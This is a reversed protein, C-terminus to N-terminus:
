FILNFDQRPLHTLAVGVEIGRSSNFTMGYGKTDLRDRLYAPIDGPLTRLDCVSVFEPDDVQTLEGNVTVDDGAVLLLTIPATTGALNEVALDICEKFRRATNGVTLTKGPKLRQIIRFVTKALRRDRADLTLNGEIEEFAYYHCPERLVETIFSFAFPSHVGHGRSTLFRSILTLRNSTTRQLNQKPNARLHAQM